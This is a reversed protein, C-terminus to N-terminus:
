STRLINELINFKLIRWNLRIPPPHPDISLTVPLHFPIIDFRILPSASIKVLEKVIQQLRVSTTSYRQVSDRFLVHKPM